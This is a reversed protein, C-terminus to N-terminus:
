FNESEGPGLAFEEALVKGDKGVVIDMHSELTPLGEIGKPNSTLAVKFRMPLALEGAPTVDVSFGDPYASGNGANAKKAKAYDAPAVRKTRALIETQAQKLVDVQWAAIAGDLKVMVLADPFWKGAVYWLVLSSDATWKAPEITAHNTHDWAVNGEIKAVVRGTKIEVVFNRADGKESVEGRKPVTVGYHGNPSISDAEVFFGKPLEQGCLSGALAVLGLVYVSLERMSM